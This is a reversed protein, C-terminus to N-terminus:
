TVWVKTIVTNEFVYVFALLACLIMATVKFVNNKERREGFKWLMM